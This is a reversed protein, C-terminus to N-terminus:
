QNPHLIRSYDEQLLRGVTGVAFFPGDDLHPTILALVTGKHPTGSGTREIVIDAAPVTQAPPQPVGFLGAALAGRFLDRREM